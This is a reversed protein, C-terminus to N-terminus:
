LLLNVSPSGSDTVATVSSATDCVAVETSHDVDAWEAAEAVGVVAPKVGVM